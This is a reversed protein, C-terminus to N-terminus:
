PSGVERAAEPLLRMARSSGSSRSQPAEEVPVTVSATAAGDPPADTVRELEFVAAAVTGPDTSTGAPLLDAVKETEVFASAFLVVTTMAAASEPVVAM